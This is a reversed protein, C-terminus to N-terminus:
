SPEIQQMSSDLITPISESAEESLQYYHGKAAFAYAKFATTLNTTGSIDINFNANTPYEKQNLMFNEDLYYMYMDLHEYTTNTDSYNFM